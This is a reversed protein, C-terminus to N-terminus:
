CLLSCKENYRLIFWYCSSEVYFIKFSCDIGFFSSSVRFLLLIVLELGAIFLPSRMTSPSKTWIHRIVFYVWCERLSAAKIFHRAKTYFQIISSIDATRKQDYNINNVIMTGVINTSMPVAVRVKILFKWRKTKCLKPSKFVVFNQNYNLGPFIRFQIMHMLKKPDINFPSELKLFFNNLTPISPLEFLYM